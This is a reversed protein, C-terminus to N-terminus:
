GSVKTVKTVKTVPRLLLPRIRRPRADGDVRRKELRGARIFAVTHASSAREVQRRNALLEAGRFAQGLQTLGSRQSGKRCFTQVHATTLSRAPSAARSSGTRSSLRRQALLSLLRLLTVEERCSRSCATAFFPSVCLIRIAENAFWARSDARALGTSSMSRRRGVACVPRTM